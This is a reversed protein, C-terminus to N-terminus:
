SFMRWRQLHRSVASRRRSHHCTVSRELVVLESRRDAHADGSAARPQLARRRRRLRDLDPRVERLGPREDVRTAQLALQADLSAAGLRRGHWPSRSWTPRRGPRVPCLAAKIERQLDRASAGAALAARQRAWMACQQSTPPRSTTSM